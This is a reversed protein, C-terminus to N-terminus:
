PNPLILPDFDLISLERTAPDWDCDQGYIPDKPLPHGKLIVFAAQTLGSQSQAHMWGERLSITHIQFAKAM